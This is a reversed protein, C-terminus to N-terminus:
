LLPGRPPCTERAPEAMTGLGPAIALPSEASSAGQARTQETLLSGLGAAGVAQLLKRRSLEHDASM